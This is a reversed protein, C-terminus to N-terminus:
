FETKLTVGIVNLNGPHTYGDNQRLYYVEVSTIRCIKKGAGLAFRNRYWRRVASSYFVEDWTFVSMRKWGINLPHRIEVRNRYRWSRSNEQFRREGLNRDSIEWRKWPAGVTTAFALRNESAVPGSFSDSLIYQYYPEFTFFRHWHFAFGSTVRRDTLHGRGNSYRIEAGLLFDVKRNIRHAAELNAWSQFDRQPPQGQAQCVMAAPVLLTGIALVVTVPLLSGASLRQNNVKPDRDKHSCLGCTQLRGTFAM